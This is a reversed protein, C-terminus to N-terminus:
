AAAAVVAAGAVVLKGVAGVVVSAEVIGVIVVAGAVVSAGIVKGNVNGGNGGKIGVVAGDVVSAGIVKRVNIVDRGFEEKRVEGNNIGVTVGVEVAPGVGCSSRVRGDCGVNGFIVIGMSNFIVWAGIMIVM